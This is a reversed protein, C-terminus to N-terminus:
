VTPCLQQISTCRQEHRVTASPTSLQRQRITTSFQWQQVTPCLDRQQIKTPPDLQRQRITPSYHQRQRITPCLQYITPHCWLRIPAHRERWSRVQQNGLILLSHIVYPTAIILLGRLIIRRKPSYLDRKYPKKAFSVYLKLSGVLRLWWM